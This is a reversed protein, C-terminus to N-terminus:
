KLLSYVVRLRMKRQPNTADGVRVRGDAVRNAYSVMGNSYQPYKFAYAPFLRFSYNYGGNKVMMQIYRSLNINYYYITEGSTGTKKRAFGGFYSFDIGGTPFFSAGNKFDPDYSVSPNLDYYLPKYRVPTANVSDKLDLYLYPPPKMIDALPDPESEIILEARHIIRNSYGTLGPISLNLFTGPQTQLYFEGPAPNESASGARNRHIYNATASRATNTSVIAGQVLYFSTYVSDLHSGNKRRYHVELKTNTDAINVYILGNGTGPLASIALGTFERRFISDSYFAHNGGGTLVSDSGFLRAAYTASDLKIRIQYRVSDRGNSYKMFNSLQRVDVTKVPALQAGLGTPQYSTPWTTNLSDRFETDTIENVVLQQPVTSDGYFGTYDLCLVVSDLSGPFISDRKPFGYPFTNPKLQLFLKAETTGFLPDNTINGLAHDSTIGVFTSDTYDSQTAFVDFTDAFTSVNDVAPVLDSGLSTTDIKTCSLFFGLIGSIILIISAQSNRM